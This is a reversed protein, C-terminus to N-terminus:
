LTEGIQDQQLRELNCKVIDSSVIQQYHYYFM